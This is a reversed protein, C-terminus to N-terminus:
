LLMAKNMDPPTSLSSCWTFTQTMNNVNSPIVPATTLSKCNYFTCYMNTVSNPIAPAKTLSTCNMFTQNMYNVSNPILPATKLSTCGKFTQYMDTVKNPITPATKLSTCGYFTSSMNTIPKNTISEFIEGYSTLTTDLVSVSWGSSSCSYTYYKDIYKDGSVATYGCPLQQGATYVTGTKMTYKGDNPVVWGECECTYTHGSKCDTTAIGHPGKGDNEYHGEIGCKAAFGVEGSDLGVANLSASNVDWFGGTVDKIATSVFSGFPTALALLVALILVLVVVWGYNSLTQKDM